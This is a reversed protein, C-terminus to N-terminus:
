RKGDVRRTIAGVDYSPDLQKAQAYQAQAESQNGTEGALYGLASHLCAKDAPKWAPVTTPDNARVIAAQFNSQDGAITQPFRSTSEAYSGKQWAYVTTIRPSAVHSQCFPSLSRLVEPTGSGDLDRLVVSDGSGDYVVPYDLGGGAAIMFLGASNAGLGFSVAVAPQAGVQLLQMKAGLADGQRVTKEVRWGAPAKGLITLSAGIPPAGAPMWPPNPQTFLVAWTEPPKTGPLTLAKADLVAAGAPLEAAAGAPLSSATASAAPSSHGAAAAAASTSAPAGTAPKASGSTRAESAPQNTGSAAAVSGRCGALTCALLLLLAFPVDSWAPGGRYAAQTIM